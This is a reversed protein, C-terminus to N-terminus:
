RAADRAALGLHVITRPRPCSAAPAPTGPGGGDRNLAALLDLDGDGDVDGHAYQNVDLPWDTMYRSQGHIQGGNRLDFRVQAAAVATLLLAV